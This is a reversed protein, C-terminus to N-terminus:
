EMALHWILGMAITASFFMSNLMQASFISYKPIVQEIGHEPDKYIWTMM